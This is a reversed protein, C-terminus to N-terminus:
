SYQNIKFRMGKPIAKLFAYLKTKWHIPRRYPTKGLHQKKDWTFYMSTKWKGVRVDFWQDFTSIIETMELERWGKGIITEDLLLM